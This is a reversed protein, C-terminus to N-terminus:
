ENIGWERWRTAPRYADTSVEPGKPRGPQSFGRAFTGESVEFPIPEFCSATPPLERETDPAFFDLGAAKATNQLFRLVSAPAISGPHATGLLAVLAAAGGRKKQLAGRLWERVFDPLGARSSTSLVIIVAGEAEAVACKAWDPDALWDFRWLRPRCTLERAAAGGLRSFLSVARQGALLDEYAILIQIPDDSASSDTPCVINGSNM